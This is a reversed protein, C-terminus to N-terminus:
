RNTCAWVFTVFHEFVGFVILFCWVSHHKRQKKVVKVEIGIMGDIKRTGLGLGLGLGLVLGVKHPVSM